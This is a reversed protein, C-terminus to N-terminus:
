LHWVAGVLAGKLWVPMVPFQARHWATPAENAARGTAPNVCSGMLESQLLQWLVLEQAVAPLGVVGTDSGRCSTDTVPRTGDKEPVVMRLSVATACCSGIVMFWSLVATSGVRRTVQPSQWASALEPM